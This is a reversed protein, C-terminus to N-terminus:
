AVIRHKLRDSYITPKERALKEEEDLAAWILEQDSLLLEKSASPDKRLAANLRAFEGHLMKLLKFRVEHKAPAGPLHLPNLSEAKRALKRAPAVTATTAATKAATATDRAAVTKAPPPEPESAVLKRRLPPPSGPRRPTESAAPAAPATSAAMDHYDGTKVRKRPGSAMDNAETDRASPGSSSTEAQRPLPWAKEDDKHRFLCRFATCQDGKPCPIHKLLLSFEPAM